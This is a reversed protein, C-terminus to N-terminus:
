NLIDFETTFSNWQKLHEGELLHNWEIRQSCLTQFLIKLRIVFPSLLGLPDFISATIKLLLRCSAPLKSLQTTLDPFFFTFEDAQSDYSIGLPKTQLQDIGQTNNAGILHSTGKEICTAEETQGLESCDQVIRSFKFGM